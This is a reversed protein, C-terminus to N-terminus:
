PIPPPTPNPHDGGRGHQLRLPLRPRLLRAPLRVGRALLCGGLAPSSALTLPNPKPRPKPKPKPKPKPIPNPKPDPNPSVRGRVRVRVRVGSGQGRVTVGLGLWSAGVAETSAFAACATCSAAGYESSYAGVECPTCRSLTATLSLTPIPTPNPYPYPYPHPNPSSPPCRDLVATRFTGPVCPRCRRLAM